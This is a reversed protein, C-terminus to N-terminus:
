RKVFKVNMTANDMAKISLLYIGWPLGSVDITKLGNSTQILRGQFDYIKSERLLKNTDIQLQDGVPNPHITMKDFEFAETELTTAAPNLRGMLWNFSAGRAYGAFYIKNNPGLKMTNINENGSSFSVTFYGNNGFSLDNSGDANLRRFYCNVGNGEVANIYSGAFVMKGDAQIATAAGSGPSGFIVTEDSIINGASDFKTFVMDNASGSFESHKGIVRIINDSSMDIFQLSHVLDTPFRFGGVGYLPDLSGSSTLRSLFLKKKAIGDETYQYNGAVIIKGDNQLFCGMGNNNLFGADITTMGNTGFGADISGNPNLRKVFVVTKLSGAPQGSGFVLLKGDAQPILKQATASSGFDDYYLIGNSGFGTDVIGNATMRVICHNFYNGLVLLNGSPDNAIDTVAYNTSNPYMQTVGNTGFSTDLLGDASFRAVAMKKFGIAGSSLETTGGIIVNGDPQFYIKRAEDYNDIDLGFTLEIVQARVPTAFVLVLLLAFTYFKKM